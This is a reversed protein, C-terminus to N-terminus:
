LHLTKRVKAIVPDALGMVYFYVQFTLAFSLSDFLETWQKWIFAGSGETGGTAKEKGKIM